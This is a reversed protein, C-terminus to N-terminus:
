ERGLLGQPRLLLIIAMIAFPLYMASDPFYHWGFSELVGIIIAGAFAGGLSGIGGIVIIAFCLIIISGGLGPSLAVLGTGAGGALGAVSAGVAFMFMFIKSVNIGLACSIERDMAAARCEYGFRTRYLLLWLGLIIVSSFLLIFLSYVPWPRGAVSINGSLYRPITIVKPLGGWVELVLGDLFLVLGFTALLQYLHEAEYIRRLLGREVILGLLFLAVTGAAIGIRFSETIGDIEMFVTWTLYAGLMFFSGHAFNIIGMTGLTVALGSVILFYLFGRTLGNLLDVLIMGLDM